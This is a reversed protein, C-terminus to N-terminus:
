DGKRTTTRTDGDHAGEDGDAVLRHAVCGGAVCGHRVVKDGALAAQARAPLADDVEALRQGGVVHLQERRAARGLRDALGTQRDGVDGLEGARGLHHVAAHLREVRADM